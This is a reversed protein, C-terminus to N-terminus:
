IRVGAERELMMTIFSWDDATTLKPNPGTSPVLRVKFGYAEVLAADDTAPRGSDIGKRYASMLLDYQFVQPTEALYLNERDVTGMVMGERARKITETVPRGLLAARHNHAEVVTLNIDSPKVLPRVADHVAVYSTALPLSALGKWVSETRTKGGPVIKFVKQFRYPNVVQNNVYLLYEEAAVIVIQDITSAQEFRSVTWALLPRGAVMRYQKPIDGGFRTGSGGSVIVAVTSM